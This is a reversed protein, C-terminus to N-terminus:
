AMLDRIEDLTLAGFTPEESEVTADIIDRKRQQLSLIKEEVTDRAILKYSTVVRTQGIRHARDTAQAEVAPNWWPDFHIVTDAASLNLGTGGAKLSILFLPIDESNQFRDVQAARDKTSGDLYAFPIESTKMRDAILQLMTVFQSFVLVRHGGDIAEAVLEDLLDLKASVDAPKIKSSDLGLLRLDCCAQRLRLLATLAQIRGKGANKELAAEEIKKRGQELLGRYIEKQAATLECWAVQELREPLDKAVDRKLRRLMIPRLRKALRAQLEPADGRNIPLEYRERFDDRNGLYGPLVFHALSWVDRVSNEVPTGTLAFRHTARLSTAAQANQTDPNKIHTAEDLILTQFQRGRYKEVDRRLLAYSTIVLDADDLKAFLPTRNAGDIVLVRLKPVFKQAERQWNFVLSSPCVVLAQGGSSEVFALTQLTKGLGMEDALIGGLRNTALFQMWGVGEAQYPRLVDRLDPPLERAVPQLQRATWDNWGADGHLQIGSHEGFSAQLFGAHVKSLRYLGPQQQKPDCDRLVEQFEDLAGTDFLVVKGDPRKQYNRGMSLLRQIDSASFRGGTQSTMEVSLNFWNEGSSRIEVSPRVTEVRELLNRLRPGPTVHALRQLTVFGTALFSLIQDEGRLVCAHSTPDPSSFGASTLLDLTSNERGINRSFKQGDIVVIRHTKWAASGSTFIQSGYTAQVIAQLHNFSGELSIELQVPAVPLGKPPAAESGSELGFLRRLKPLELLRFNTAADRAIRVPHRLLEDYGGPLTPELRQWTLGRLLWAGHASALVFEPRPFELKLQISGDQEEEVVLSSQVPEREIKMTERRAVVLRDFGGAAGLIRSFDDRSVTMMGPAQGDTIEYITQLIGLDLVSCAYPADWKLARLLMRQKRFVAEVGLTLQDRTLFASFNPGLVLHLEIWRADSFNGERFPFSFAPKEVPVVPAAAAAPKPALLHLGLAVSHACIQGWERSARCSCMNEINSPSLIKLGARYETDGERVLGKLIPPTYNASVVRGTKVLARAHQTVQWGAADNLMRETLTVM